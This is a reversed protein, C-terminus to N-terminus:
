RHEVQKGTKIYQQWLLWIFDTCLLFERKDKQYMYKLREHTIRDETHKKFDFLSFFIIKVM